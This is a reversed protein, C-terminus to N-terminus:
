RDAHRYAAPARDLMGLDVTPRGKEALQDLVPRVPDVHETSRQEDAQREDRADPVATM